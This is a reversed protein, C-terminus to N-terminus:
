EEVIDKFEKYISGELYREKTGKPVYLICENLIGDNNDGPRDSGFWDGINSIPEKCKLHIKQPRCMSFANDCISIKPSKIIISDIPNSNFAYAEVSTINQPLVVSTMKNNEFLGYEVSTRKKSWEPVQELGCNAFAFDGLIIDYNTLEVNQINSCGNFAGSGIEKVGHPIIINCLSVCGVFADSGIKALGTSASTMDNCVIVSKLNECGYFAEGGIEKVTSPIVVKTIKECGDFAGSGIITVGDEIEVTCCCDRDCRKLITEGNSATVIMKNPSIYAALDLIKSEGILTGSLLRLIEEVPIESLLNYRTGFTNELCQGILTESIGQWVRPSIYNTDEGFEETEPNKWWKYFDKFDQGLNMSAERRIFNVIEPLINNRGERSTSPSNAWDVWEQLQESTM